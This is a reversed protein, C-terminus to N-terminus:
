ENTEENTEENTKEDVNDGVDASQGTMNDLEGRWEGVSQPALVQKHYIRALDDIPDLITIVWEATIPVITDKALPTWAKLKINYCNPEGSSEGEFTCPKTMYYGIVKEKGEVEVGMNSVDCIVDEGSKLMLIKISM